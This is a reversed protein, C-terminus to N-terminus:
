YRRRAGDGCPCADGAGYEAVIAVFRRRLWRAAGSRASHRRLTGAGTGGRAEEVTAVADVTMGNDTLLKTMVAALRANDEIILLKM